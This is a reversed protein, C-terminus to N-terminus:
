PMGREILTKWFVASFTATATQGFLTQNGTGDSTESMSRELDELERHELQLWDKSSIAAQLCLVTPARFGFANLNQITFLQELPSHNPNPIGDWIQVILEAKSPYFYM